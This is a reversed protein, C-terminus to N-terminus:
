LKLIGNDYEWHHNPCLGILNSLSNIESILTEDSFEAVAKIHAVEVHNTYGCIACKPNPTNDFFVKRAGKQISSRASQWNKRNNFLSGKTVTSIPTQDQINPIINLEDCRKIIQNRVDSGNTRYGLNTTIENWGKSKTIIELFEDDSPKYVLSKSKGKNFTENDNITRRQPLEIGLSRAAKRIANGTVNYREGILSYPLGEDIILRELEEKNYKSMILLKACFNSILKFVFM